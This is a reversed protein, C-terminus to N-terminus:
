LGKNIKIDFLQGEKHDMANKIALILGMDNHQKMFSRLLNRCPRIQRYDTCSNIVKIIWLHIDYKNNKM